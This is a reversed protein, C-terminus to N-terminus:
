RGSGGVNPIALYAIKILRLYNEYITTPAIPRPRTMAHAQSAPPSKM